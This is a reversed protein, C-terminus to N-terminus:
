REARQSCEQIVQLTIPGVAASPLRNRVRERDYPSPKKAAEMAELVPGVTEDEQQLKHIDQLPEMGAKGYHLIGKRIVDRREMDQLLKQVEKRRFPPVRGPPQHTPPHNGTDIAHKLRGTLGLEDDSCSFAHTYAALITRLQNSNANASCPGQPSTNETHHQGCMSSFGHSLGIM